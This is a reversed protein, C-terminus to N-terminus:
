NEHSNMRNALKQAEDKFYKPEGVKTGSFGDYVQYFVGIVSSEERVMYRLEKM